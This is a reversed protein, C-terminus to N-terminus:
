WLGKMAAGIGESLGIECSFCLVMGMSAKGHRACVAQECMDCETESPRECGEVSCTGLDDGEDKRGRVLEHEIIAM